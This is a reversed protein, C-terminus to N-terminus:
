SLGEAAGGAQVVDSRVLSPGSLVQGGMRAASDIRSSTAGRWRRVRAMGQHREHFEHVFGRQLSPPVIVRMGWILSKTAYVTRNQPQLGAGTSTRGRIKAQRNCHVRGNQHASSRECGTKSHKQMHCANRQFLSRFVVYDLEEWKGAPLPLTSYCDSRRM